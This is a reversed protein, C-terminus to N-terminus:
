LREEEPCSRAVIANALMQTSLEDPLESADLADNRLFDRSWNALDLKRHKAHHAARKNRRDQAAPIDLQQLVVGTEKFNLHIDTFALNTCHNVPKVIATYRM